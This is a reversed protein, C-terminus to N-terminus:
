LRPDEELQRLADRIPIGELNHTWGLSSFILQVVHSRKGVHKTEYSVEKRILNFGYFYELIIHLPEPQMQFKTMIEIEDLIVKDEKKTEEGGGGGMRMMASVFKGKSADKKRQKRALDKMYEYTKRLQNVLREPRGRM